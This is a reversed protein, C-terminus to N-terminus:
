GSIPHSKGAWGSSAASAVHSDAGTVIAAVTNSHATRLTPDVYATSAAHASLNGSGGVLAVLAILILGIRLSLKM